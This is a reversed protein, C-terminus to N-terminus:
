KGFDTLWNTVKPLQLHQFNFLMKGKKSAECTCSHKCQVSLTSVPSERNGLELSFTPLRAVEEGQDPGTGCRRRKCVAHAVGDHGRNWPMEELYESLSIGALLHLKDLIQLHNFCLTQPEKSPKLYKQAPTSYIATAKLNRGATFCLKRSARFFPAQAWLSPGLWESISEDLDAHTAKSLGGCSPDWRPSFPIRKREM